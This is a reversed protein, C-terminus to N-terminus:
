RILEMAGTLTLGMVGVSCEGELTDKKLEAEIGYSLEFDLTALTELQLSAEVSKGTRTGTLPLAMTDLVDDTPVATMYSTDLFLGTGALEGDEDSQIDLTVEMTTSTGFSALTCDGEWLGVADNSGGGGLCGVTFLLCFPLARM